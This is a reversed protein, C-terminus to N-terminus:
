LPSDPRPPWPLGALRVGTLAQHRGQISPRYILQNHDGAKFCALAVMTIHGRSAGNFRVV